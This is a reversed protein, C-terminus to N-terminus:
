VATFDPSQALAKRCGPCLKENLVTDYGAVTMPKLDKHPEGCHTCEGDPQVFPKYGPLTTLDFVQVTAVKPTAKFTSM